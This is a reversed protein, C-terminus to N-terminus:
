ISLSPLHSYIIDYICSLGMQNKMAIQLLQTEWDEMTFSGPYGEFHRSIEREVVTATGSSCFLNNALEINGLPNDSQWLAKAGVIVGHEESVGQVGWPITLM